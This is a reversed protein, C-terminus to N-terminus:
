KEDITIFRISKIRQAVTPKDNADTKTNAIKDLTKFGAILKGFAAYDGNLHPSTQHVIFFQSSASNPDEGRAMSLVGREHDLNNEFNNSKFEGEINKSSGGYGDGEPDGGQIMFDKIVRHFILNDYFKESILSQFNEVTKPAIDPYLEALMIDGTTMEIKIYNTVDSTEKYSIKDLTGETHNTEKCGTIFLIFILCLLTIRKKTM